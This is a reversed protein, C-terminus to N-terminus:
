KARWFSRTFLLLITFIELRGVLMDFSLLWKAADPIAAFNGSPGTIGSGPGYNSFCTLFSIAGEEVSMGFASLAVVNIMFVILFLSFFSMVRKLSLDEVIQGSIKVTYMSSPHILEHITKRIYKFLVIVRVMKIGGSTSGACGGVVMLLVTPILFLRGWTDYDCNSSQFGTNSLLAVVHFLSIRIRDWWSQPHSALQDETITRFHPAFYFRGVFILIFVLTAILYWRLEENRRIVDFRRNFLFHYMAFNIGSLLMFLSCIWELYSSQYYGISAQHTSFGGTAITTLAHCLADFKDMPGLYYAIACLLTLFIYIIWLLRSTAGMTPALKEVSLGPAEAAFLSVKKSGKAVSPLFALTFVVVGLGGMWQTISRWFLIGHPQQEINGLITAGTTSFGSMTEFFADTVNDVTGYMLFPLMGFLSFLVWSLAVVLFTDRIQLTGRKSMNGINYLLLGVSATLAATLLFCRADTEGAVRQYHLAVASTLLLAAAEILLLVGFLKSKM